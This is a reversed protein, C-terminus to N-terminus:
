VTNDAIPAIEPYKAIKAIHDLLAWVKAYLIIIDTNTQAKNVSQKKISGKAPIAADTIKLNIHTRGNTSPSKESTLVKSKRNPINLM